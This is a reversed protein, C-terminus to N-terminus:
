LASGTGRLDHTVQQLEHEELHEREWDLCAQRSIAEHLQNGRMDMVRWVQRHNDFEINSAREVTLSGIMSLEIAETYLCKGLGDPTFTIAANM